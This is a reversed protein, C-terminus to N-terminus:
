TTVMELHISSCTYRGLRGIELISEDVGELQKLDQETIQPYSSRCLQLAATSCGAVGWVRGSVEERNRQRETRRLKM